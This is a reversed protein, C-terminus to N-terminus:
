VSRGSAALAPPAVLSHRLRRAKSRALWALSLRETTAKISTEKTKREVTATRPSRAREPRAKAGAAM